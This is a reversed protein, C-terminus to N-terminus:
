YERDYERVFQVNAPVPYIQSVVQEKLSSRTSAKLSFNIPDYIWRRFDEWENQVDELLHLVFSFAETIVQYISHKWLNVSKTTGLLLVKRGKESRKM